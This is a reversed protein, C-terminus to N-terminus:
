ARLLQKDCTLIRYSAHPGEATDWLRMHWGMAKGIEQLEDMVSVSDRIYVRGGPRLIRDMELMITSM